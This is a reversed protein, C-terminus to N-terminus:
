SSVKTKVQQLSERTISLYYYFLETQSCEYLQKSKVKYIGRDLLLVILEDKSRYFIEKKM